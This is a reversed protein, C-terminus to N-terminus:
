EVESIERTVTPPIAIGKPPTKIRGVAFMYLGAVSAAVLAMGLLFGGIMQLWRVQLLTGGTFAGVCCVLYARVAPELWNRRTNM